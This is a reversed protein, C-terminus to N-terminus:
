AVKPEPARAPRWPPASGVVAAVASAAPSIPHWVVAAGGTELAEDETLVLLAGLDQALELEVLALNAVHHTNGVSPGTVESGGGAVESM